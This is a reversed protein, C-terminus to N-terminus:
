RSRRGRLWRSLRGGAQEPAAAQEPPAAQDPAAVQEPSAAQDSTAEPEAAAVSRHNGTRALLEPFHADSSRLHRAIDDRLPRTARAVHVRRVATHKV